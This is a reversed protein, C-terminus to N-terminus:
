WDRSSVGTEDEVSCSHVMRIPVPRAKRTFAVNAADTPIANVCYRHVIALLFAIATSLISAINEKVVSGKANAFTSTKNWAFNSTRSANADHYARVGPKPCLQHQSELSMGSIAVTVGPVNDTTVLITVLIVSVSTGKVFKALSSAIQDLEMPTPKM